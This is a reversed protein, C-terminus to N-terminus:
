GWFKLVRESFFVLIDICSHATNSFHIWDSDVQDSSNLVPKQTSTSALYHHKLKKKHFNLNAFFFTIIHQNNNFHGGKDSQPNLSDSMLSLWLSRGGKPKFCVIFNFSNDPPIEMRHGNGTTQRSGFLRM